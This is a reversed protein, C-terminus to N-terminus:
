HSPFNPGFIAKLAQAQLRELSGSQSITSSNYLCSCFDHNPLIISKYVQLLDPQLTWLCTQFKKNISEVQVDMCPYASFYFCLIKLNSKSDVRVRLTVRSSTHTRTPSLRSTPKLARVRMGRVKAEVIM